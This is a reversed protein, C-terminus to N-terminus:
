VLIGGKSIEKTQLAGAVLQHLFVEIDIAAPGTLKMQAAMQGGGIIIYAAIEPDLDPSLEGSTQGGGIIECFLNAVRSQLDEYLTWTANEFATSWDLWVKMIASDLEVTNSFARAVNLIKDFAFKDEAAANWVIETIRAEVRNLVAETLSERGDFYAYVTPVSVGARLAVHSRRAGEIGHNAYIEIACDILQERRKEPSLKPARKPRDAIKPHQQSM